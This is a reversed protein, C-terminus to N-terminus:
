SNGENKLLFEQSKNVFEGNIQEYIEQNSSGRFLLDWRKLKEVFQGTKVLRFSYVFKKFVEDEECREMLKHFTYGTFLMLDYGPLKDIVELLQKYYLTPEGGSFTLAKPHHKIGEDVYPGTTIHEVLEDVTYEVGGNLDWTDPNHCGKCHFPCGQFFLALRLGPGDVASLYETGALRIKDM